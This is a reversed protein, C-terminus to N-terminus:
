NIETVAVRPVDICALAVVAKCVTVAIYLRVVYYIHLLQSMILMRSIYATLVAAVLHWADNTGGWTRSIFFWAYNFIFIFFNFTM